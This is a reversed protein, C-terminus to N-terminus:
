VPADMRVWPRDELDKLATLEDLWTAWLNAWNFDPSSAQEGAQVKCCDLRLKELTKAHTAIFDEVGTSANFLIHRLKLTHLSPFLVDPFIQQDVASVDQDVYFTLEELAPSESAARLLAPITGTLFEILPDEFVAGERTTDTLVSIRLSQLHRFLSLFPDSLFIKNPLALLNNLSLSRLRPSIVDAAVSLSELIGLQLELGGGGTPEPTYTPDLESPLPDFLLIISRLAPLTGVLSFAESLTKCVEAGDDRLPAARDHLEEGEEDDELYEDRFILVRTYSKAAETQILNYFGKSNKLTNKAILREFARPTALACLGRSTARVSFLDQSSEVGNIIQHLLELPIRPQPGVM